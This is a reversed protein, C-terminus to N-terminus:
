MCKHTSVAEEREEERVRYRHNVQLLNLIVDLMSSLEKPHLIGTTCFVRLRCMLGLPYAWRLLAATDTEPLWVASRLQATFQFSQGGFPMLGDRITRPHSMPQTVREFLCQRRRWGFHSESGAGTTAKGALGRLSQPGHLRLARASGGLLVEVSETM